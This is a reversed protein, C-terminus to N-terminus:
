LMFRRRCLPPSLPFLPPTLSPGPQFVLRAKKNGRGVRVVPVFAAPDFGLAEKSIGFVPELALGLGLAAVFLFALAVTAHLRRM